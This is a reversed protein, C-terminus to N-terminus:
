IKLRLDKWKGKQSADLPHEESVHVSGVGSLDVREKRIHNLLRGRTPLPAERTTGPIREISLCDILRDLNTDDLDWDVLHDM